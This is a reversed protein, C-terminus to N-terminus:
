CVNKDPGVSHDIQKLHREDTLFTIELPYSVTCITKEEEGIVLFSRLLMLLKFLSWKSKRSRWHRSLKETRMSRM